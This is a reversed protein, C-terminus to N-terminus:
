THFARLYPNNKRGCILKPYTPLDPINYDLWEEFEGPSYKTYMVEYRAWQM